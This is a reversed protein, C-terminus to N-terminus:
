VGMAMLLVALGRSGRGTQEEIVDIQTTGDAIM